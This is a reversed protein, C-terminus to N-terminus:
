LCLLTNKGNLNELAILEGFKGSSSLNSDVLTLGPQADHNNLATVLCGSVSDKDRINLLFRCCKM